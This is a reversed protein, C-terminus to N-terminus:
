DLRLDPITFHFFHTSDQLQFRESESANVAAISFMLELNSDDITWQLKAKGM